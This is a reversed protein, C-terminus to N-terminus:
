DPLPGKFRTITLSLYHRMRKYGEPTYDVLSLRKDDPPTYRYVLGEEELLDIYRLGTTQPVNAGLCLSTTGVRRGNAKQIFLDLLMDWAPEAFLEPGFIAARLQRTRYIMRATRALKEDTYGLPSSGPALRAELEAVRASLDWLAAEGESSPQVVSLRGM